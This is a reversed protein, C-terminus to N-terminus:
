VYMIQMNANTIKAQCNGHKIANQNIKMQHKKQDWSIPPQATSIVYQPIATIQFVEPCWM